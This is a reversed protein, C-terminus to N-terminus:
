LDVLYACRRFVTRYVIKSAAFDEFAAGWVARGAEAEREEMREVLGPTSGDAVTAGLYRVAWGM